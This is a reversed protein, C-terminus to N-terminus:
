PLAVAAGKERLALWQGVARGLFCWVCVSEREREASSLFSVGVTFIARMATQGSDLGEVGRLLDGQM